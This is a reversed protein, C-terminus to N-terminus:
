QLMHGSYLAEVETRAIWYGLQHEVAEIRKMLENQKAGLLHFVGLQMANHQLLTRLTLREALPIIEDTYSRSNQHAIHLHFKAKRAQSRIEIGLDQYQKYQRFLEAYRAASRAQGLDFFPIAIAIAPGVFWVGEDRESDPGIDLQPFIQRVVDSGMAASTAFLLSRAQELDFSNAVACREIEQWEREIEPVSPLFTSFGWEIQCGWLGMLVNLREKAAAVELEASAVDVKAQSFMLQNHVLELTTLNGAALLRQAVDYAADYALLLEKKIELVQYLTQLTYFAMKTQAIVELIEGMIRNKVAQLEFAAMRKKLPILLTELFNHLLSMDILDTITPNTSFRYSLAFIPNPLLGAQVLDAKATGLEHYVSQLHRNNLLAICVALDPTVEQQLLADIDISPDWYVLNGTRYYIDRQIHEFEPQPNTNVRICGSALLALCVVAFFIRNNM